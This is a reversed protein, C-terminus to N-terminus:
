ESRLCSDSLSCYGSFCSLDQRNQERYPVGGFGSKNTRREGAQMLSLSAIFLTSKPNSITKYGVYLHARRSLQGEEVRSTHGTARWM